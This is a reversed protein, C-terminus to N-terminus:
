PSAALLWHHWKIRNFERASPTPNSGVTGRPVATKLVAAKFWEAMGGLWLDKRSFSNYCHVVEYDFAKGASCERRLGAQRSPYHANFM